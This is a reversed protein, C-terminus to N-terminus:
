RTRKNPSPEAATHVQQKLVNSLPIWIQLTLAAFNRLGDEFLEQLKLPHKTRNFSPVTMMSQDHIINFNMACLLTGEANILPGLTEGIIM